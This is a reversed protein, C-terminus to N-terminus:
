EFMSSWAILFASHADAARAFTCDDPRIKVFEFICRMIGQPIFQQVRWAGYRNAALLVLMQRSPLLPPLIRFTREHALLAEKALASAAAIADYSEPREFAELGFQALLCKLIAPRVARLPILTHPHSVGVARGFRACFGAHVECEYEGSGDPFTAAGCTPCKPHGAYARRPLRSVFARLEDLTIAEAGKAECALRRAYKDPLPYVIALM